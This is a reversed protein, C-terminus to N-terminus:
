VKSSTSADESIEKAMTSSAEQAMSSSRWTSDPEASKSFTFLSVLYYYYNIIIIIIIIIINITIINTIIIVIIIIIIIILLLIILIEKNRYRQDVITWRQKTIYHFVYFNFIWYSFHVFINCILPM